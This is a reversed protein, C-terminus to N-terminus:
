MDMPVISWLPDFQQGNDSGIINQELTQEPASWLFCWLEVDSAKTLPIWQHGTFEGWLPGTVRFINGNSSTMMDYFMTYKCYGRVSEMSFLVLFLNPNFEEDGSLYTPLKLQTLKCCSRIIHMKLMELSNVRMNIGGSKISSLDINPRVIAQYWQDLEHRCTADSPVLSNGLHCSFEGLVYLYSKCDSLWWLSTIILAITDWIM